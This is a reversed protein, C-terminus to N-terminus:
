PRASASRLSDLNKMFDQEFAAFAEDTVPIDVMRKEWSSLYVANALVLSNLGERGDAILPSGLLCADSFNQLLETYYKAKTNFSETHWIGKLKRFTDAGSHRYEAETMGIEPALEGIRLTNNECIILAEDLVIELRNTGPAEGNSCILTGTAGDAWEFYATLDDEVEIMHYRGVHCFAQARAPMGLIWQLLDLNHVCQNLLMGGGDTAWSAHWSVSSYYLDPRYGDTVSWHVRKLKGYIGSAMIEKLRQFCPTPRQNFIMGFKRDIGAADAAANMHRAQATYVGSPKDSLVHLGNKLARITQAEHAYHPTAIIVADLALSGNEVAEFLADASSYVPLGAALSDAFLPKHNERIRTVASLTLGRILGDQIFSAYKSGMNGIGIVATRLTNGSYQKTITTENM